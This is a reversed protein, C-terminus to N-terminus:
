REIDPKEVHTVSCVASTMSSKYSAHQPSSKWVCFFIFPPQHSVAPVGSSQCVASQWKIEWRWGWGELLHTKGRLCVPQNTAKLETQMASFTLEVTETLGLTVLANWIPLACQSFVNVGVCYLAGFPLLSAITLLAEPRQCLTLSYNPGDGWKGCTCILLQKTQLQELFHIPFKFFFSKGLKIVFYCSRKPLHIKSLFKLIVNLLSGYTALIEPPFFPKRLISSNETM